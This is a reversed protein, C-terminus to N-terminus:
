DLVMWAFTAAKACAKNFYVRFQTASVRKAYAVFVGAGPNGQMTVLIKADPTVGQPVTVATSKAGKATKGTGSRELSVKGLVGLGVGGNENRASVGVGWKGAAVGEVGAMGGRAWVGYGKDNLNLGYVGSKFPAIASGAVGDGQTSYGDVGPGGTTSQGRVGARKGSGFIGWGDGLHDGWVGSKGVATSRGVTGDGQESWGHVGPGGKTSLGEVGAGGTLSEGHVGARRGAGFIGWGDGEHSGYVASKVAGQTFARVGDNKAARVELGAGPGTNSGTFVPNVSNTTALQGVKVVDGDAALAEGPALAAAALAGGGLVAAKLIVDRRDLLQENPPGDPAGSDKRSKM